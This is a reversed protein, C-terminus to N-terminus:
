NFYLTNYVKSGDELIVSLVCGTYYDKSNWNCAAIEMTIEQGAYAQLWAYQAASSCYLRISTTGDTLAINTYYANGSVEVTAKMTYVSTTYDTDISLAYFDAVSIEGAFAATSYDNTGYKNLVVQADKLCTQGYTKGSSTNIGRTAEIVVEHGIEITEMVAETTQVAIVGTDDILYFGVKNVLSPGVIGRVTVADGVQAAIADAVTPYQESDDSVTVEITVDTSYTQDGYTGTVTITVTGTSLCHLVGDTVTAVAEDSSVYSLSAGQFQLLESSVETCLVLAPDGTYAPQFQDLGYYKVAFEAANVSAPDFGEDVVKVPLFRWICGAASSKANLATLYVTCVKGDFADLWAFDSGNCQTYVYSGTTGDLDNIYYNTFGSGPAKTVLATVKYLQSTIDESVPTDMIEKVTATPIGDTSFATNGNDNSVLIANDLQNCGQYGFKEASYTEDELIWYTKDAKVTITNGVACAAAIEKGYVYISGSDDVLIVGSPVKGFAYTIGAVVGSVQVKDGSAANRADAISVISYGDPTVNETISGTGPLLTVNWGNLHQQLLGLDQVNIKDDANVDAAPIVITVNWGNLHQQLLGLDQVNVKGNNNVDGPLIPIERVAGCANCDADRDNDYIHEGTAPIAETYSDGCACTYTIVGEAGCTAPTTIVSEYAHVHDVIAVAGDKLIFAVPQLDYNFIDAPDEVSLTLPTDGLPADEAVAFTLLAVVGDDTVNPNISDLWIISLTDGDMPGFEVGAFDLGEAATLTLVEPDYGVRIRLGVIGPNNVVKVAATVMGGAYGDEAEVTLVPGVSVSGDQLAFDVVEMDYNFIDTPDVVNLSLPYDGVPADEAVAFTLLAVVGDDTVDPHIADLWIISVSGGELPGFEVGAFDQGEAAVPTLVAPDYDVLIRLGVIGPNNVVRVAATVTDGANATITDVAITPTAEAHVSLATGTCLCSVLLAMSLIWSLVKKM